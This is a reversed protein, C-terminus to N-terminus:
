SRQRLGALATQLAMWDSKVYDRDKAQGWLRHLLREVNEWTAPTAPPFALAADPTEGLELELELSERDVREWTPFRKGCAACQRRRRVADTEIGGRSRAVLSVCAGCFPCAMKLGDTARRGPSRRRDPGGDPRGRDVRRRDGPMLGGPLLSPARRGPRLLRLGEHIRTYLGNDAFAFGM